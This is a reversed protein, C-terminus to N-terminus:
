VEKCREYIEQLNKIIDPIINIISEKKKGDAISLWVQKPKRYPVGHEIGDLHQKHISLQWTNKFTISKVIKVNRLCVDVGKLQRIQDEIQKKQKLLEELTKTTSSEKNPM